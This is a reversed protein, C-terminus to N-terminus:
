GWGRRAAIADLGMEYDDAAADAEDACEYPAYDDPEDELVAPPEYPVVEIEGDSVSVEHTGDDLHGGWFCLRWTTTCRWVQGLYIPRGKPPHVTVRDGEAYHEALVIM